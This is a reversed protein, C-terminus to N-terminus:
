LIGEDYEPINILQIFKDITSATQLQPFKTANTVKVHGGTRTVLQWTEWPINNIIYPHHSSLIFQMLPAKSMIFDTLEPMCNIGLSNEFEDIIIVSNPPALSINVLHVLTRFFGSSIQSQSIWNHNEKINFSFKYGQQELTVRIKIDEVSPFIDIFAETIEQFAKPYLKELQYAKVLLPLQISNKKFQELSMRQNVIINEPNQPSVFYKEQVTESFIIQQFGDYIPAISAEESLINIASETKKLKPLEKGNLQNIKESRELIIIKETGIKKIIKEYVIPHQDSQNFETFNQEALSNSFEWEYEQETQIFGIKWEVAETTTSVAVQCVEEIAKIIRTKGVGSIGVLLNFNNFHVPEIYLKRNKNHFTFYTLKM